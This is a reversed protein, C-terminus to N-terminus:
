INRGKRPRTGTGHFVRLLLSSYGSHLTGCSGGRLLPQEADRSAAPALPHRALSALERVSCVDLRTQICFPWTRLVNCRLQGGCLWILFSQLWQM